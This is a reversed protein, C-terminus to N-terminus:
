KILDNEKKTVDDYGFIKKIGEYNLLEYIFIQELNLFTEDVLSDQKIYKNNGIIIFETYESNKELKLEDMKKLIEIIESNKKNREIEIKLRIHINLNLPNSIMDNKNNKKDNIEKIKDKSKGIIELLNSEDDNKIYKEYLATNLNSEENFKSKDKNVYNIERNIKNKMIKMNDEASASNLIEPEIYLSSYLNEAYKGINKLKLKKLKKRLSDKTGKTEQM